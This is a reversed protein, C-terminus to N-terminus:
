VVYVVCYDSQDTVDKEYALLPLYAEIIHTDPDVGTTDWTTTLVQSEGVGLTVEIDDITGGDVYSIPVVFTESMAGENTVNVSVEVIDGPSASTVNTWMDVIGIDHKVPKVHYSIYKSAYGQTWDETGVPRSYCRAFGIYKHMSYHVYGYSVWEPSGSFCRWQPNATDFDAALDVISGSALTYVDTCLTGLLKIEDKSYLTFEAYVECTEETPNGIKALLDLHRGHVSEVLDPHEPKACYGVLDPIWGAEMWEFIQITHTDVTSNLDNDTVTLTVTYTGALTYTHDVVTGDASEGDGFGWEESILWGDPDYSLSTFTVSMGEIGSSPADIDAIPAQQSVRNDFLGDIAEHPIPLSGSPTVTTLKSEEFHIPSVGEATINFTITLLVGDGTAGSPPFPPMLTDGVIVYGETNDIVGYPEGPHFVEWMQWNTVGAAELFPGRAISLANLTNNDFTIHVNWAYLDTVDYVKVDVEFTTNPAGTTMPPEIAVITAPSSMNIGATALSTLLLAIIWTWIVHKGRVRNVELHKWGSM